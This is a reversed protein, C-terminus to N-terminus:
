PMHPAFRAIGTLLENFAAVFVGREIEVCREAVFGPQVDTDAAVGFAGSPTRQFYWGSLHGEVVATLVMYVAWTQDPDTRSQEIHKFYRGVLAEKERAEVAAQHAMLQEMAAKYTAKAADLEVATLEVM